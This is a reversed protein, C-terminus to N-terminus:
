QAIPRRRKQASYLVVDLAGLWDLFGLFLSTALLILWTKSLRPENRARTRCHRSFPGLVKPSVVLVQCEYADGFREQLAREIEDASEHLNGLPIGASFAIWRLWARHWVHRRRAWARSLCMDTVAFGSCGSSGAARLLESRSDFHVASDVSVIFANASSAPASRLYSIADEHVISAGPVHRRAVEVEAASLNVGVLAAGPFERQWFRLAEGCGCGLDVILAPAGRVGAALAIARAGSECALVYGAATVPESETWQGFSLWRTGLAGNFAECNLDRYAHPHAVIQSVSRLTTSALESM